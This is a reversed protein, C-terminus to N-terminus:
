DLCSFVIITTFITYWVLHSDPEHLSLRKSLDTQGRRGTQKLSASLSIEGDEISFSPTVSVDTIETIGGSVIASVKAVSDIRGCRPCKQNM